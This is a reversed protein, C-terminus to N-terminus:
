STMTVVTCTITLLDVDIEVNQKLM